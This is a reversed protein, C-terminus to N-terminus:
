AHADPLQGRKLRRLLNAVRPELRKAKMRAADPSDLGLDEAIAAWERAEVKSALILYREDPELFQLALRVWAQTESRQAERSPHEVAGSPCPFASLPHNTDVLSDFHRANRRSARRHADVLENLAITKLLGRFQAASNPKFKPGWRLFNVVATQVIDDPDVSTHSSSRWARSVEHLLWPLSASLLTDLAQTDGSHWRSLIDLTTDTPLPEAMNKPSRGSYRPLPLQPNLDVHAYERRLSPCEDKPLRLSGRCANASQVGIPM